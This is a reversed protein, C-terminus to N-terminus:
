RMEWTKPLDLRHEQTVVFTKGPSVRTPTTARRRAPGAASAGKRATGQGRLHATPRASSGGSVQTTSSSGLRLQHRSLLELASERGQAAALEAASHGAATLASADAGSHLLHQVIDVHGSMAALHLPAMGEANATSPDAGNQLLLSVADTHGKSAAMACPTNGETDVVDVMAGAELLVNAAGVHGHTCALLLPTAGNGDVLDIQAGGDTLVRIVQAHGEIAAVCLPTSGECLIDAAAGKRLLLEVVRGHGLGAAYWMGTCGMEDRANLNDGVAALCSVVLPYAGAICADVLRKLGKAAGQDSAPSPSPPPSTSPLSVSPMPATGLGAAAAQHETASDAAAPAASPQAAAVREVVSPTLQVALALSPEVKSLFIVDGSHLELSAPPPPLKQLVGGGGTGTASATASSSSPLSLQARRQVYCPNKGLRQVVWCGAAAGPAGSTSSASANGAWHIRVHKRHLRSRDPLGLVGRGAVYTVDIDNLRVTEGRPGVLTLVPQLTHRPQEGGGGSAGVVTAVAAPLQAPRQALHRSTHGRWRSQIGVAAVHQILLDDRAMRGRVQAQLRSAAAHEAAASAAATGLWLGEAEAAAARRRAASGRFAAQIHTASASAAARAASLAHVRQRALTARWAAQMAVVCDIQGLAHDIQARQRAGRWHSQIATAATGAVTSAHEAM